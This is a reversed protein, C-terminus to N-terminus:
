RYSILVAESQQVISTQSSCARSAMRLQVTYISTVGMFSSSEYLCM